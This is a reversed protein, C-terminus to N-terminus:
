AKRAIIRLVIPDETKYPAFGKDEKASVIEFGFQEVKAVFEESVVFRRHHNNYYWVNGGKDIGKGFLDDKTTRVECCFLGGRKLNEFVWNLTRNEGEVDVAHMTFRSYIVDFKDDEKQSPLNTFDAPFSSIKDLQNLMATTNTCQDIATVSAAIKAFFKADRGNGCGLELLSKKSVLGEEALFMAFPSPTEPIRDAQSYYEEWYKKDQFSLNM